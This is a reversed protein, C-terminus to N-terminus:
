SAAPEFPYKITLWQWGSRGSEGPLTKMGLRRSYYRQMAHQRREFASRNAETLKGEYELPFAKLIFGAAVGRRIRSLVTEIMGWTERSENASAADIRLRDFLVISGYDFPPQEMHGGSRCFLAMVTAMEYAAQSHEDCAQVFSNMTVYRGPSGDWEELRGEAVVRHGAAVSFFHNRHRFEDDVHWPDRWYDLRLGNRATSWTAKRQRGEEFVGVSERPKQGNTQDLGTIRVPSNSTAKRKV